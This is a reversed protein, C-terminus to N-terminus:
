YGISSIENRQSKAKKQKKNFEKEQKQLGIVTDLLLLYLASNQTLLNDEVAKDILRGLETSCINFNVPPKIKQNKM